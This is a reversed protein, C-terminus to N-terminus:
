GETAVRELPVVQWEMKEAYKEYLALVPMCALDDNVEALLTTLADPTAGAARLVAWRYGQGDELFIRDGRIHRRKYRAVLTLGCPRQEDRPPVLSSVEAEDRDGCDEEAICAGCITVSVRGDPHLNWEHGCASCESVEV